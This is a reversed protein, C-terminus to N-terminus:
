RRHRLGALMAERRLRQLDSRTMRAAWAVAEMGREFKRMDRELDQM